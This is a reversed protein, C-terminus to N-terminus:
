IWFALTLEVESLFFVFVGLMILLLGLLKRGSMKEKLCVVGLVTVFIYGASELVPGMSLPVQRYALVTLATAAFFLSYAAAVTKNAYERFTTAHSKLASTKLMLQSVSAIFVALLFLLYHGILESM